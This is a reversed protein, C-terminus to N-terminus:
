PALVAGSPQAARSAHHVWRWHPLATVLRERAAEDPLQRRVSELREQLAQMLADARPDGVALLVRVCRVQGEQDLEAALPDEALIEEVHRMAAAIGADAHV